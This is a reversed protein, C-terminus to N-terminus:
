GHVAKGFVACAADRATEAFTPHAHIIEALKDVPLRTKM